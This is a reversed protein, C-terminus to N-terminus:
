HAVSICGFVARSRENELSHVAIVFTAELMEIDLPFRVKLVMRQTKLNTIVSSGQQIMTAVVLSSDDLCKSEEEVLREENLGRFRERRRAQADGLLRERELEAERRIAIYGLAKDVSLVLLRTEDALKAVRRTWCTQQQPSLNNKSKLYVDKLDQNYRLLQNALGTLQQQKATNIEASGSHQGARTDSAPGFELVSVADDLRAKVRIVQSYLSELAAM